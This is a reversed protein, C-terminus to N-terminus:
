PFPLSLVFPTKDDQINATTGTTSHDHASLGQQDSCNSGQECTTQQPNNDVGRNSGDNTSQYINKSGSNGQNNLSGSSSKTDSGTIGGIKNDISDSATTDASNMNGDKGSNSGEIARGKKDNSSADGEIIGSNSGGSSKTSKKAYAYM